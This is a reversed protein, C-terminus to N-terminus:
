CHAYAILDALQTGIVNERKVDCAIMVLVFVPFDPDIKDLSHDGAEDMFIYLM